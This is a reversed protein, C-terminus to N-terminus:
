SPIWHTQSVVVDYITFEGNYGNTSIDFTTLPEFGNVTINWTCPLIEGPQKFYTLPVRSPQSTYKGLQYGLFLNLSSGGTDSEVSIYYTVSYTGPLLDIVTSSGRPVENVNTFKTGSKLNSQEFPLIVKLPTFIKPPLTYGREYAFFGNIQALLGYKGSKVMLSLIQPLTAEDPGFQLGFQSSKTNAVLYDVKVYQTNHIDASILPFSNNSVEQLTLNSSLFTSFLFPIATGPPQPRPLFEPMDNEFLVYPNNKPIMSVIKMLTNYDSTNFGINQSFSYNPNVYQNAPGYPEYFMSATLTIVFVTLAFIVKRKQLMAFLSRIAKATKKAFGGAFLVHHIKDPKDAFVDIFGLFIMPLIMATYQLTVVAPFVYNTDGTFIGLIFFPSTMALWRLRLVPLFMAPAFVFMFTIVEFFTREGLPTAAYGVPSNGPLLAFYLGCALFLISITLVTLYWRFANPFIIKRQEAHFVLEILVFLFPFIMYPFKVTGSLLLLFSSAAFNNKTHFYYASIFIPVFFAQFHVDFWLIGASPYYVLFTASILLAVKNNHTLQEAIGYLPFVTIEVAIIQLILLLQYSHFLYLPALVFQFGSNFLVFIDFSISHINFVQWLRQMVFGLDYVSSHLTYFKGLAIATWIATFGLFLGILAILTSTLKPVLHGSIRQVFGEQPPTGTCGSM